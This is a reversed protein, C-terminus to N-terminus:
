LLLPRGNIGKDGFKSGQVGLRYFQRHLDVPWVIKPNFVTFLSFHLTSLLIVDTDKQIGNM